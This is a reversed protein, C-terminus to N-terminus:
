WVAAPPEGQAIEDLRRLTGSSVGAPLDALPFFTAERIELGPRPQGKWDFARVIFLAVHDRVSVAPNHFLGHLQPTGRVVVNGEELLERALAELMTEGAEVGGGPFHWGHVYGHRVLLVEGKADFVAGRVGLTLGRSYRWYHHLIRQLM